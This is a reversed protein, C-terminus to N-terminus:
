RVTKEVKWSDTRVTALTVRGRTIALVRKRVRLKVKLAWQDDYGVDLPLDICFAERKATDLAHM